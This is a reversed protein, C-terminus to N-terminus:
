RPLAEVKDAGLAPVEDPDIIRMALLSDPSWRMRARPLDPDDDFLEPLLVAHNPDALDSDRRRIRVWSEPTGLAFRVVGFWGPPLDDVGVLAELVGAQGAVPVTGVVQDDPDLMLLHTGPEVDGPPRMTLHVSVERLEIGVLEAAAPVSRRAVRLHGDDSRELLFQTMGDPALPVRMPERTPLPPTWVARAPMLRSTKLVVDYTAQGGQGPPPAALTTLDVRVSVYSPDEAPDAQLPLLDGSGTDRLYLSGPMADIALWLHRGDLVGAYAVVPGRSPPTEGESGPSRLLRM